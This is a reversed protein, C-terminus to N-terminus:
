RDNSEKHAQQEQQTNVEQENEKKQQERGM